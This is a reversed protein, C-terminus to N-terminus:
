MKNLNLGAICIYIKINCLIVHKVQLYCRHQHWSLNKKLNWKRTRSKGGLGKCDHAHALVSIELFFSFFSQISMWPSCATIFPMCIVINLKGLHFSLASFLSTLTFSVVWKQTYNEAFIVVQIPIKIPPLVSLILREKSFSVRKQIKNEGRKVFQGPM